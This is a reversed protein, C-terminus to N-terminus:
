CTRPAPAAHTTASATTCHTKQGDNLSSDPGQASSGPASSAPALGAPQGQLQNDLLPTNMHGTAALGQPGPHLLAPSTQPLPPPASQWQGGTANVPVMGSPQYAPGPQFGASAQQMGPAPQGSNGVYLQGSSMGNFSSLSHPPPAGNPAQPNPLMGYSSSERQVGNRLLLPAGSPLVGDCQPPTYDQNAAKGTFGHNLEMTPSSVGAAGAASMGQGPDQPLSSATLSNPVFGPGQPGNMGPTPVMGGQTSSSSHQQSSSSKVNLQRAVYQLRHELTEPSIYEERCRASNYLEHELRHVFQTLRAGWGPAQSGRSKRSFIAFIQQTLESRVAQDLLPDQWTSRPTTAFGLPTQMQAQM